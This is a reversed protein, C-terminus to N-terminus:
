KEFILAGRSHKKKTFFGIAGGVLAGPIAGLVFGAASLPDSSDQAIAIGGMGLSGIAAGILAGKGTNRKNVFLNARWIKRIEGRPVFTESNEVSKKGAPQLKIGADDASKLVGYITKGAQTKLAIDQNVLNQLDSWSGRTQASAFNGSIFIISCITLVSLLKNFM